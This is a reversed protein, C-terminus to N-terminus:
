SCRRPLQEERMGPNEWQATSSDRREGGPLRGPIDFVRDGNCSAKGPYSFGHSRRHGPSTLRDTPSGGYDIEEDEDFGEVTSGLANFLLVQSESTIRRANCKPYVTDQRVPLDRQVLKNIPYPNCAFSDM